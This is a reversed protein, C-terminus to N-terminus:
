IILCEKSLWSFIFIEMTFGIQNEKPLIKQSKKETRLCKVSSLQRCTSLKFSSRPIKKRCYLRNSGRIQAKKQRIEATKVTPVKLPKPVSRALSSVKFFDLFFDTKLKDHLVECKSSTKARKSYFFSLKKLNKKFTGLRVRETGFGKFTGIRARETGGGVEGM